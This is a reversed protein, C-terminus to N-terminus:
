HFNVDLKVEENSGRGEGIWRSGTYILKIAQQNADEDLGRIVRINIPNGETDVQFIVTVKGSNGYINNIHLYKKYAEWGIAPKLTQKAKANYGVVMVENLSTNNPELAILVSDRARMNIQQREYGAMSVALQTSDSSHPLSFRGNSDTVGMAKDALLVNVGPLPQDTEKDKVMGKIANPKRLIAARKSISNAQATVNTYLSEASPVPSLKHQITRQKADTSAMLGPSDAQATIEVEQRDISKSPTNEGKIASRSLVKPKNPPATVAPSKKSPLAAILQSSDSQKPSVEISARNTDEGKAPTDQFVLTEQDLLGDNKSTRFIWLSVVAVLVVSAAILWARWAVVKGRQKNSVRQRILQDIVSLNTEHMEENGSEMGIMMDMLLPDEQARKELMHMEHASLEGKLYKRILLIDPHSNKM